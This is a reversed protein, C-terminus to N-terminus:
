LVFTLVAEFDNNFLGVSKCILCTNAKTDNSKLVVYKTESMNSNNDASSNDALDKLPVMLTTAEFEEQSLVCKTDPIICLEESDTQEESQEQDLEPQFDDSAIPDEQPQDMGDQAEQDTADQTKENDEKENEVGDRVFVDEIPETVEKECEEVDSKMIADDQPAEDAAAASMDEVSPAVDDEKERDDMVTTSSIEASQPCVEDKESLDLNLGGETEVAEPIESNNDLSVNSDVKDSAEETKQTPSDTPAGLASMTDSVSDESLHLDISFPSYDEDSHYKQNSRKEQVVSETSQEVVEATEAVADEAREVPKNKFNAGSVSEQSTSDEKSPPSPYGLESLASWAEQGTENSTIAFDKRNEGMNSSGEVEEALQPAYTDVPFSTYHSRDYDTVALNAQLDSTLPIASDDSDLMSGLQPNASTLDSSKLVTDESELMDQLEQRADM